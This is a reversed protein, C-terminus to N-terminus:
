RSTRSNSYQTDDQVARTNVRDEVIASPHEHLVKEVFWKHSSAGSTKVDSTFGEMVLANSRVVSPPKYLPRNAWTIAIGIAFLLAPIFGAVLFVIYLVLLLLTRGLISSLQWRWVAPLKEAYLSYLALSVAAVATFLHNSQRSWELVTSQFKAGGIMLKDAM